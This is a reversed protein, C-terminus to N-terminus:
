FTNPKICGPWQAKTLFALVGGSPRKTFQHVCFLHSGVQLKRMLKESVMM